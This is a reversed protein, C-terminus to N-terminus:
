FKLACKKKGGIMCKFINRRIFTSKVMFAVSGRCKKNKMCKAGAKNKNFVRSVCKMSRMCKATGVVVQRYGKASKHLNSRAVSIQKRSMLAINKLMNRFAKPQKKWMAVHKVMMKHHRAMRHARHKRAAHKSARRAHRKRARIARIHRRAHKLHIKAVARHAGM